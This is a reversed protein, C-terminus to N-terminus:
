TLKTRYCSGLLQTSLNANPSPNSTATTPPYMFETLQVSDPVTATTPLAPIVLTPNTVQYGYRAVDDVSAFVDIEVDYTAPPTITVPRGLSIIIHGLASTGTASNLLSVGKGYKSADGIFRYPSMNPIEMEIECSVAAQANTGTSTNDTYYFLSQTSTYDVREKCVTSSFASYGDYAFTDDDSILAFQDRIIGARIPNLSQTNIPYTSSLFGDVTSPISQLFFGPPVYWATANPIGSLVIKFRSGGSYGYFMQSLVKLPHVYSVGPTATGIDFTKQGILSAVDFTVLGENAILTGAVLRRSAVRYMRRAIDRVHVIPRFDVLDHVHSTKSHILIDEQENVVQPVEAECEWFYEHVDGEPSFAILPTVPVDPDEPIPDEIPPGAFTKMVRCMMPDVSYGYFEFDDGCSLYVNFQAQSSVTGNFVMPQSLYIYYIGHELANTQFEWCVPLQNLPSCYPLEITQVQGGASFELTEVLLNQVSNFAPYAILAATVPSYDRAVAIKCFHFNTMVAQIHIKMSGKWYRSMRAMIQPLNNFAITNVAPGGASPDTYSFADVQQIPTIPRSWLLTGATDANNVRFTGIYQPKQLLYRLSMEDISTDFIYDRCIRDYSAFPDMKEYQVPKDVNNAMQRSTVNYKAVNQPLNPNHLGTLSKVGQRAVDLVDNGFKRVVSFAGDIAKSAINSLNEVIGEAEFAPPTIYTLDLHPVYFEVDTFMAFVSVTLTTSGSGPPLLPNLTMISAQAYNVGFAYTSITDGNIDTRDLKGNVYFPVELAVPTSENASMFVHPASMYSGIYARANAASTGTTPEYGNPFAAAILMGEHMPTGSVQMILTIKARYLVSSAFPVKALQNLLLDGPISINSLVTFAPATNVWNVNRIFFPKNLIRSFDMKLSLPVQDLQPKEKFLFEPEIVTRTRVSSYFNDSIEM